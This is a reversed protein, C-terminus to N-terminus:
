IRVSVLDNDISSVHLYRGVSVFVNDIGLCRGVSVFDNDDLLTKIVDHSYLLAGGRTKRVQYVRGESKDANLEEQSNNYRRLSENALWGITENGKCPVAFWEGRVRVSLKMRSM